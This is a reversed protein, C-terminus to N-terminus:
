QYIKIPISNMEILLFHSNEIPQIKVNDEYIELADREELLVTHNKDYTSTVFSKGFIQVLYGQRNERINFDIDKDKEVLASYINVDQNVKVPALGNKNSVMYIWQNNKRNLSFNYNMYNPNSLKKNPLIWLQLFRLPNVGFNHEECTIGSGASMYQIEDKKLIKNNGLSDGHTLEGDIVYSLIEMDYHPHNHFGSRPLIVDDNLVKIVGFSNYKPNEYKEYSYHHTSKIWGINSEGMHSLPKKTIM